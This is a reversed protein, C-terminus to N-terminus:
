SNSGMASGAEASAAGTSTVKNKNGSRKKYPNTKSRKHSIKRSLGTLTKDETAFNKFPNRHQKPARYFCETLVHENITCAENLKEM